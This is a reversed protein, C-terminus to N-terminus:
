QRSDYIVRVRSGDWELDFGIDCIGEMPFGRSGPRVNVRVPVGRSRMAKGASLKMVM